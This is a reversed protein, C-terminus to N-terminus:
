IVSNECYQMLMAAAEARAAKGRPDLIGNGKGNIIKQEVAWQLAPVAYASATNRDTFNDLKGTSEPNGAYQWLITALQQRTIPDEPGFTSGDYGVAVGNEAAWAIAKAYYRNEAVDTFSNAKEPEPEGELHWLITVIMGRSTDLLPSFKTDSTGAMLEKEYVYKVSDHFWDTEAVDAFPNWDPRTPAPANSPKGGSKKYGVAYISFKNVHLVIAGDKVEMYERDANPAAPIVEVDSIHHRYITIDTKNKRDFPIIIELLDNTSNIEEAPNAGVQKEVKIELFELTKGSGAEAKIEGAAPNSEDKSEVTMTVLANNHEAEEQLGGVVVDPTNPMVNLKSGVNGSPITLAVDLKSESEVTVLITTIKGGKEAVVNYDGPAVQAFSYVGDGRTVFTEGIQTKGQMLKVSVGGALADNEEVTGSITYANTLWKAYLTLNDTVTDNAFDWRRVCGAETYWGGFTFGDKTPDVTPPTIRANYPLGALPAAASGGQTNFTVTLTRGRKVLLELTESAFAHDTAKLRVYYKLGNEPVASVPHEEDQCDQWSPSNDVKYEMEATLGTVKGDNKGKITEDVAKPATPKKPRAPINVAVWNSAQHTDDAARRIYVTKGPYESINSGDSIPTGTEDNKTSVEYGSEVTIEELDYDIAYGEGEAPDEYAPLPGVTTVHVINSFKCTGDAWTVKCVYDGVPADTLTSTIQDQVPNFVRLAASVAPPVPPAADGPDAMLIVLVYTGDKPANLVYDGNTDPTNTVDGIFEAYPDDEPPMGGLLLQDMEGLEADGALTVVLQEGAEMDVMFYEPTRGVMWTDTEPDYTGIPEKSETVPTEEPQCWAYGVGDTYNVTVSPRGATPQKTIKYEEYVIQNNATDAKLFCGTNLLEYKTLDTTGKLVPAGDQYGDIMPLPGNPVFKMLRLSLPKQYGTVDVWPYVSVGEDDPINGEIYLCPYDESAVIEGTGNESCDVLALNAMTEVAPGGTFDETDDCPSLTHGNLCLTATGDTFWDVWAWECDGALYYYGSEAMSADDPDLRTFTM